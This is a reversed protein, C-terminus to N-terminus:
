SVAGLRWDDASEPEAPRPLTVKIWTGGNSGISFEGGLESVRERMGALGVGLDSRGSSVSEVVEPTIGRGYDRITLHLCRDAVELTVEARTSGSYRHVNNLAEQMVRFLALETPPPLRRLDPPIDLNVQINSRASFGDVFWRAASSFGAEDLLPPHLLYSTTRIEKLAQDALGEVQSIVDDPVEGTLMKERRLVALNLKLATLTQGTSDHLERAIRRREEDQLKLLSASLRQLAVTRQQVQSELDDRSGRMAALAEKLRAEAEQQAQNAQHLKTVSRRASEAFATIFGSVLLYVAISVVIPTVPGSGGGRPVFWYLGGALTLLMTLIAPGVGCYWAAFVVAIILLTLPLFAGLWPDLLYRFWLTAASAFVALAYKAWISQAGSNPAVPLLGM